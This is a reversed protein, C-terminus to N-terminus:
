EMGTGRLNKGIIMDVVSDIVLDVQNTDTACTVHSYIKKLTDCKVFSEFQQRMYQISEEYGNGGEYNRFFVRINTKKIKEAFIDKKNLFLIISAELFWRSSCIQRFLDLSEKLRNTKSDESLTQDYESIASIFIIAHVDDFLHIWIRRESRQGGVDFIRFLTGKINITTQVVGTTTIRIRLIDEITPIYAHDNVRYLHDMFYEFSDAVHFENRRDYTKRVNPEAWLSKLAKYTQDAFPMMDKGSGAISLILRSSAELEDSSLTYMFAERARLILAMGNITNSYVLCAMNQLDTHTYGNNHLINIQKLITSKGGEGTGLLLLKQNGLERDEDRRFQREIQTNIKQQELLEPTSCMSGM